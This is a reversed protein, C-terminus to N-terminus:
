PLLLLIPTMMEKDDIQGLVHKQLEYPLRCYQLLLEMVDCYSEKRARVSPMASADRLGIKHHVVRNRESNLRTLTQGLRTGRKLEYRPIISKPIEFWKEEFRDMEISAFLSQKGKAHLGAELIGNILAECLAHSLLTIVAREAGFKKRFERATLQSESLSRLSDEHDRLAEAVSLHDASFAQSGAM